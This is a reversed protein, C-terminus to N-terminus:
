RQRCHRLGHRSVVYINGRHQQHHLTLVADIMSLGSGVILVNSAAPIAAVAAYDWPNDIRAAKHDVPFPFPMPPHNGLALVAKDVLMEGVRSYITLGSAKEERIENVEYPLLRLTMKNATQSSLAALVDQLYHRYLLRPVFQEASISSAASAAPLYRAANLQLWNLFHTPEDEFASMDKARVNLLHFPFPTRYADGVGFYGTKDFLMVELSPLQSQHSQLQLRSLCAALSTGSFGAGIIGIKLPSTATM